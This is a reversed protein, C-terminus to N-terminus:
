NNMWVRWFFIEVDCDKVKNVEYTDTSNTVSAASLGSCEFCRLSAHPKNAPCNRCFGQRTSLRKSKWHDSPIGATASLRVAPESM